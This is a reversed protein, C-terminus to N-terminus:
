TAKTPKDGQKVHWLMAHSGLYSSTVARQPDGAALREAMNDVTRHAAIALAMADAANSQTIWRRFDAAHQTRIEDALLLYIVYNELANRKRHSLRQSAIGWVLALAFLSWALITM